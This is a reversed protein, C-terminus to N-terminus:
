TAANARLFAAAINVYVYTDDVDEIYGIWLNNTDTTTVTGDDSAYVPAGIDTLALAGKPFAVVGNRIATIEKAGNATDGAGIVQKEAAVGGFIDGAAAATTASAVMNRFYGDAVSVDCMLIAGQYVTYAAGAATAGVMKLKKFGINQGTTLIPRDISATLAM